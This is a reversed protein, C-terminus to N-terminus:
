EHHGEGTEAGGKPTVRVQPRATVTATATATPRPSETGSVVVSSHSGWPSTTDRSSRPAEPAPPAVPPTVPPTPTTVPPTTTATPSPGGTPGPTPTSGPDKVKIPIKPTAEVPKCVTRYPSAVLNNATGAHVRFADVRAYKEATKNTVKLRYKGYPLNAAAPFIQKVKRTLTSSQYLDETKTEVPQEFDDVKLEVKGMDSALDSMLDVGTGVFTFESSDGEVDVQSVDKDHHFESGYPSSDNERTWTGNYALAFEGESVFTDNYTSEVPALDLILSGVTIYGGGPATVAVRGTDVTGFELPANDRIRAADVLRTGTADITGEGTWLGHAEVRGTVALHAGKDFREDQHNPVKLPSQAEGLRWSVELREGLTLEKSSLSVTVAVNKGDALPGACQFWYPGAAHSTSGPVVVLAATALGVSTAALARRLGVGCRSM